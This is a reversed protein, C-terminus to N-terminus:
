NANIKTRIKADPQALRAGSEQLLKVIVLDNHAKAHVMPSTVGNPEGCFQNPDAGHRLLLAVMQRDGRKIAAYLPTDSGPSGLYWVHPITEVARNVNVGLALCIGARKRDGDAAARILARASPWWAILFILFGLGAVFSCVSNLRLRIRWVCLGFALLAAAFVWWEGRNNAACVGLAVFFSGMLWAERRSSKRSIGQVELTDAVAQVQVGEGRMAGSTEAFSGMANSGCELRQKEVQNRAARLVVASMFLFAACAVWAFYGVSVMEDTGGGVAHLASPVALTIALTAVTIPVPVRRGRLTGFFSIMMLLNAAAGLICAVFHPTSGAGLIMTGVFSLMFVNLGPVWPSLNVAPLFLGSVFCGAAVLALILGLNRPFNATATVTTDGREVLRIPRLRRAEMQRFAEQRGEAELQGETIKGDTQLARYEFVPM